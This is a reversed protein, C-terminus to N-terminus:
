LHSVALFGQIFQNNKAQLFIDLHYCYFNHYVSPSHLLNNCHPTNRNLWHAMSFVGHQKRGLWNETDGLWCDANGSGQVCVTQVPSSKSNVARMEGRHKQVEAPVKQIQPEGFRTISGQEVCMTGEQSCVTLDWVSSSFYLSHYQFCIEVLIQLLQVVSLWLYETFKPKPAKFSLSIM